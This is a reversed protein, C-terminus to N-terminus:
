AAARAVPLAAPAADRVAFGLRAFWAAVADGSGGPNIVVHGDGVECGVFRDPRVAHRALHPVAGPPVAVVARPLLWPELFALPAGVAPSVVWGVDTLGDMDADLTVRKRAAEAELPTARGRRVADALVRGVAAAALSPESDSVVARTGRLAVEVALRVTQDDCGVFGVVEPFAVAPRDRLRRAHDRARLTADVVAPDRFAARFRVRAAALREERPPAFWDRIAWSRPKRPYAQLRDLFTRLEIKGRRECFADDLLGARRAERATRIPGAGVGTRPLGWCPPLGTAADPFGIRSGPGAVALRYDCALALELGPGLCPGEVFAVTVVDAGVLRTLVRQGELAFATQADEDGILDALAEPDHGGCFGGPLGSRIVLIEVHSDALVASLGRGIEALRAPTLANVPAGPFELWLTAIGDAAEVRVHPSEYLM